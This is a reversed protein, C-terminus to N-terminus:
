PEDEVVPANGQPYELYYDARIWNATKIQEVPTRQSSKIFGHTCFIGNGRVFCIVRLVGVKIEYFGNRLPKFVDENTLPGRDAMRDFVNELKYFDEEHSLSVENLFEKL